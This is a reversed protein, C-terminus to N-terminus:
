SFEEIRGNRYIITRTRSIRAAHQITNWTGGNQSTGNPTAFLIRTALVIRHNRGSYSFKEEVSDCFAKIGPEQFKEDLPPHLDIKYGLKRAIWHAQTDGGICGGHHFWGLGCQTMRIRLLREFWELQKESMGLRSGSYGVHDLETM